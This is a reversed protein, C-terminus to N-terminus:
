SGPYPHLEAERGRRIEDREALRNRRRTQAERERRLEDATETVLPPVDVPRGDEDLAVM